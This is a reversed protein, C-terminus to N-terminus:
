LDQGDSLELPNELGKIQPIIGGIIGKLDGHMGYTNDIVMRINKEDRAWKNTFYRKEKEIEEQMNTFAEIIAEMRHKFETGSLYGYLMEMKQDKAQVSNKVYFLQILKARLTDALPVVFSRQTVWINNRFGAIKMNNPLVESVLVAEEAKIVRQDNKLKTIWSESWTKTNKLEWLIKGAYNGNSDWVEQITDGGKIGKGIPAIKDNPYQSAILQEFELEFAEGQTQQSGQQLKRRMDEVEKLADQLQKDKEIIKLHQEEEAKKQADVRIKGEEEALKKQMDIKAEDRQKKSERLEESLMSIQEILKEIRKEKSAADEQSLKIQHAFEEKIKKQSQEFASKKVEELEVQFKQREKAVIDKEVQDKFAETIEVPHKCNPCIITNM